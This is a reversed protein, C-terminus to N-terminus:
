RYPVLWCGVRGPAETHTPVCRECANQGGTVAKVKVEQKHGLPLWHSVIQGEWSKGLCAVTWPLHIVRNM